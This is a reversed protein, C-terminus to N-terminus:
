LPDLYDKIIADSEKCGTTTGCSLCNYLIGVKTMIAGCVHCTPNGDLSPDHIAVYNATDMLHEFPDIAKMEACGFGVHKPPGNTLWDAYQTLAVETATRDPYPGSYDAWTETWFYWGMPDNPFEIVTGGDPIPRGGPHFFIPDIPSRQTQLIAVANRKWEPESNFGNKFKPCTRDAAMVFRETVIGEWIREVKFSGDKTGSIQIGYSM